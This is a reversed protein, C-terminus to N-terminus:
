NWLRNLLWGDAPSFLKLLTFHSRFDYYKSKSVLLTQVPGSFNKQLACMGAILIIGRLRPRM